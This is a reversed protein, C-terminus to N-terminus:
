FRRKTVSLMKVFLANSGFYIYPWRLSRQGIYKAQVCYHIVVPSVYCTIAFNFLYFTMTM